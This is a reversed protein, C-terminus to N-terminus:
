ILEFNDSELKHRIEKHEARSDRVLRLDKLLPM